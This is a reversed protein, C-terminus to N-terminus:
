LNRHAGRAYNIFEDVSEGEPWDPFALASPDNVPSINQEQALQEPSKESEFHIWSEARLGPKLAAEAGLERIASVLEDTAAAFDGTAYAMWILKEIHPPLQIQM